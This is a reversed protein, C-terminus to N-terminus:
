GHNTIPSLTKDTVNTNPTDFTISPLTTDFKPAM